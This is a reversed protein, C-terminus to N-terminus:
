CRIRNLLRCKNRGQCQPHSNRFREVRTMFLTQFTISLYVPPRRYLFPVERHVEDVPDRNGKLPDGSRHGPADLVAIWSM